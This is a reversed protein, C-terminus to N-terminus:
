AFYLIDIKRKIATFYSDSTNRVPKHSEGLYIDIDEYTRRWAQCVNSLRLYLGSIIGSMNRIINHALSVKFLRQQKYNGKKSFHLNKSFAAHLLFM